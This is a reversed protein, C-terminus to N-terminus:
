KGKLQKERYNVITSRHAHEKHWFVVRTFPQLEMDTVKYMMKFLWIYYYVKGAM